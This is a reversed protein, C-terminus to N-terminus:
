CGQDHQHLWAQACHAMSLCHLFVVSGHMQVNHQMKSGICGARWTMIAVLLGLVYARAQLRGCCFM